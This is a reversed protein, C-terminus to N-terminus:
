RNSLMIVGIKRLAGHRSRVGIYSVAVGKNCERVDQLLRKGFHTNTLMIALGGFVFYNKGAIPTSDDFWATTDDWRRTDGVLHVENKAPKSAVSDDEGAGSFRRFGIFDANFNSRTFGAVALLATATWSLFSNRRSVSLAWQPEVTLRTM